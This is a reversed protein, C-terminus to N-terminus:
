SLVIATHLYLYNLLKFYIEVFSIRHKSVTHALCNQVSEPDEYTVFGYHQPSRVGPAKSKSHIRLEAVSGFKSFIATLQEETANHPVNGMFLQHNDGYQQNANSSRREAYFCLDFFM